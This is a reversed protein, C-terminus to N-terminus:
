GALQALLAEVHARAADTLDLLELWFAATGSHVAARAQQRARLSPGRLDSVLGRLVAFALAKYGQAEEAPAPPDSIITPPMPKEKYVCLSGQAFGPTLPPDPPFGNIPVNVTADNAGNDDGEELTHPVTVGNSLPPAMQQYLLRPDNNGSPISHDSLDVVLAPGGTSGSTKFMTWLEITFAGGTYGGPYLITGPTDFTIQPNAFGYLNVTPDNLLCAVEGSIPGAIAGV